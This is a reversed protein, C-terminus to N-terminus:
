RFFFVCFQACAGGLSGSRALKDFQFKNATYIFGTALDTQIVFVCHMNSAKGYACLCMRASKRKKYTHETIM